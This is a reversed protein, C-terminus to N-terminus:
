GNGRKDQENGELLSAMKRDTPINGACDSHCTKQEEREERSIPIPIAVSIMKSTSM